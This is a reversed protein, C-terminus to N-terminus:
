KLEGKIVEIGGDECIFIQDYKNVCNEKVWFTTDGYSFAIKWLEYFKHNEDTDIDNRSYLKGNDYVSFGYAGDYISVILTKM